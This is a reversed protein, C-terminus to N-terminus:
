KIKNNYAIKLVLDICYRDSRKIIQYTDSVSTRRSRQPYHEYTLSSGSMPPSLTFTIFASHDIIVSVIYTM